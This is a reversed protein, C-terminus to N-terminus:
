QNLEGPELEFAWAWDQPLDAISRLALILM